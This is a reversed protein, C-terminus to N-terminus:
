YIRYIYIYIHHAHVRTTLTPDHLFSAPSKWTKIFVICAVCHLLRTFPCISLPFEPSIFVSRLWPFCCCTLLLWVCIPIWSSIIVSRPCSPGYIPVLPLSLFHPCLDSMVGGGGRRVLAFRATCCGIPIPPPCEPPRLPCPSLALPRWPPARDPVRAAMASVPVRAAMASWTIRAAMISWTVGHAMASGPVRASWTVGHDMTPLGGGRFFHIGCGRPPARYHVRHAGPGSLARSHVRHAGPVSRARSHVRHAGPGSRAPGASDFSLQDPGVRPPARTASVRTPARTASVRPPARTASVRPPERTASVRPPARSLQVSGAPARSLQVSGDPTSSLVQSSNASFPVPSFRVCSPAPSSRVCSPAPSSGASSPVPSSRGCPPAPSSRARPSPELVDGWIGGILGPACSGRYTPKRYSAPKHTGCIDSPKLHSRVASKGRIAPQSLRPCLSLPFEPSIFVYFTILSFLLLHPTILCLHPNM